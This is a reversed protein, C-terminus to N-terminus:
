EPLKELQLKLSIKFEQESDDIKLEHEEPYLFKLRKSVNMLGIGSKFREPDEEVRIFKSNEVAFRLTEKEIELHIYIYSRKRFSIGHKFANEIFPILLMPSIMLGSFDQEPLDFKLSITSNEDIRLRQLDVYNKLYELEKNLAIKELNNEHLMFRMMDGLKQVAESTREANEQIATGYITNLANFLFHPNIQSRLFDLEAESKGLETQLAQYEATGKQHHRFILWTLPAIIFLHIVINFSIVVGILDDQGAIFSALISLPVSLIVSPLLTKFLYRFYGFKGTKLKPLIRYFAYVSMAMSSPIILGALTTAFINAEGVVLFFMLFAYFLAALVLLSTFIGRESSFKWFLKWLFKVVLIITFFVALALVLYSNIFPSILFCFGFIVLTAVLSQWIRVGRYLNPLVYFYISLFALYFLSVELFEFLHPVGFLKAKSSSEELLIAILAFGYILSSILLEVKATTGFKEGFNKILKRM